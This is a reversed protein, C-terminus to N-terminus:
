SAEGEPNAGPRGAERRGVPRLVGHELGMVRDCRAALAQNHTAILSTLRHARHLREILGFVAVANQEDLDGTPEDALLLSPGTVLARAIAVRQQEGGSLEGARHSAREALGVQALWEHSRRLAEDLREGRILLPLAVNEAASFDPLLHHRQWVFGVARNRYSALAADDSVELPKASFYVTGNTPTDLAALLHLLTSKGAGSPAVIAVIEGETLTFNVDSLIVLEGAHSQYVKRLNRAELVVRLSVAGAVAAATSGGRATATESMTGLPEVGQDNRLGSRLGRHGKSAQAVTQTGSRVPEPQRAM